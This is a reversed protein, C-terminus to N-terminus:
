EPKALEIARRQSKMVRRSWGAGFTSFLTTLRAYHIMRRAGFEDILSLVDCQAAYFITKAGIQGDEILVSRAQRTNIARQLLRAASGVGANVAHDFVLLGLGDPLEDAKVPNWHNAHYIAEAEERTLKAVDDITVADVKRWIALTHATIGLNTTGGPDRPHDVFGGEHELIFAVAAAFKPGMGIRNAGM